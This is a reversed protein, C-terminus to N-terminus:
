LHVGPCAEGCCAKRDGALCKQHHYSVVVKLVFRDSDGDEDLHPPVPFRAEHALYRAEEAEQSVAGQRGKKQAMRRAHFVDKEGFRKAVARRRWPSLRLRRM